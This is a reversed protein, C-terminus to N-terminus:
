NNLTLFFIGDINLTKAAKVNEEKNDIFLIEEPLVNLRDLLIQYAALDPKKVGIEFALVVPHFLRYYGLQEKLQAQYRKSNSFLATQFGQAQLKKIIELTGPIDKIANLQARKFFEIWNPSLNKGTSFAYQDWFTQESPNTALFDVLKKPIKVAEQESIQLKTVLFQTLEKKDKKAIVGNFDFVIVKIPTEFHAQIKFIFGILLTLLYCVKKLM